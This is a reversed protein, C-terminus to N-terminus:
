CNFFVLYNRLWIFEAANKFRVVAHHEACSISDGAIRGVGLIDELGDEQAHETLGRGIGHEGLFLTIQAAGRYVGREVYDTLPLGAAANGEILCDSFGGLGVSAVDDFVAKTARKLGEGFARGLNKRQAIEFIEAILLYGAGQINGLHEDRHRQM